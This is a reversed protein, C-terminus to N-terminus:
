LPQPQHGGRAAPYQVPHQARAPRPGRGQASQGAGQLAREAAVAGRYDALLRTTAARRVDARIRGAIQKNLEDIQSRLSLMDPHDPKMFTRKQQYEAELTARQQRLTQTSATVDTTPGTALAQRYAGEAAVRRATADALAKNLAVLSEGQLSGSDGGTSKGDPGARPPSSGRRRPM